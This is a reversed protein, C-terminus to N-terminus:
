QIEVLTPINKDSNTGDGLQGRINWGWCLLEGDGRVGCTHAERITESFSGHGLSINVWDSDNGIRTPINRNDATGDGLQGSTNNGWCFLEGNNRIGCTHYGGLLIHTWDSEIGISTPISKNANTGDGLQGSDNRGWCFLEGGNRLGCSHYDGLFVHTWDSETGILTIDHYGNQDSGIQGYDNSHGWCFLNGNRVGCAHDFGSSLHTWDSDTGILIPFLAHASRSSGIFQGINQGWCFLEGGNRIGCSHYYHGLVIYTWDSETGVRTPVNRNSTTGDGIEGEDNYGWCFLEGGNRIGCSHHEGLSIHTWDSNNGIRIPNIQDTSTDYQDIGNAGDGLQGYNNHGWCFLEGDNTLGCTHAYGLSIHQWDSTETNPNESGSSGDTEGGSSGDTEVTSGEGDNTDLTDDSCGFLYILMTLAFFKKM